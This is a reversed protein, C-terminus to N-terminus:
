VEIEVDTTELSLQTRQGLLMPRRKGGLYIQEGVDNILDIDIIYGKLIISVEKGLYKNADELIYDVEIKNVM